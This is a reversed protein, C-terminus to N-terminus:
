GEHPAPPQMGDLLVDRLAALLELGRTRVAPPTEERRRDAIVALAAAAQRAFLALLDLESLSSRSQEVPDLVELVGLM